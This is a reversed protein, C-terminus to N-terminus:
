ELSRMGALRPRFYAIRRLRQGEVVGLLWPAYDYIMEAVIVADGGVTALGDSLTTTEGEAGLASDAQLTGGGSLQWAIRAPQDPDDRVVGSVIVRTAGDEYFPRLVSPVANFADTLGTVTPDRERTMLDAMKAAGSDLKMDLLTFRGVEVMALLAALFMPMLLAAELTVVGRRDRWLRAFPPRLPLCAM